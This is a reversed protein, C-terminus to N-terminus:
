ALSLAQRAAEDEVVVEQTPTMMPVVARWRRVRRLCLYHVDRRFIRMTSQGEVQLGTRVLTVGVAAVEAVVGADVVGAAADM